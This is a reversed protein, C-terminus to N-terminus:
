DQDYINFRSKIKVRDTFLLQRFTNKYNWLLSDSDISDEGSLLFLFFGSLNPFSLHGTM